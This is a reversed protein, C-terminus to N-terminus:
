NHAMAAVPSIRAAKLAPYLCVLLGLLLVVANAVVVDRLALAPYIVRTMGAYEAGAALASLDVGGAALPFICLLALANGAATGMLLLMLSETLVERVIWLPKMGLAKLLGFERIREFVAMLTTNVIGFGMAVFMVVSWIYIFGDMLKLLSTMLPLLERWSDVEFQEGPLATKLQEVVTSAEATEPLRVSIESVGRGLGLMEQASRRTVFVFQKETDQMEAGFIGAIRYARSAIAGGTDQSMLVLKHGIETEFREILAQGVLIRNEDGRTLYRGQRVANGIFSVRAEEAPPIGVLTVGLSHRANSAVASVRVRSTVHAGAPLHRRLAAEVRRPEEISHEISPDSRYGARHVQLHGTLTSIGNEIMGVTIGRMLAGLFVMSWVGIVVATLIVATRRPNRWINRWAIQLFM